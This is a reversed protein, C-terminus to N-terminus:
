SLILWVTLVMTGVITSVSHHILFSSHHIKRRAFAAGMGVVALVAFWPYPVVMYQWFRTFAEVPHWGFPAIFAALWSPLFSRAFETPAGGGEQLLAYGTTFPSGYMSANLFLIPIFPFILGLGVAGLQVSRVRFSPPEWQKSGQAERRSGRWVLAVLIAGVWLLEHTRITLALGICLGGTLRCMIEKTMGLSALFRVVHTRPAHFRSGEEKAGRSSRFSVDANGRSSSQPILLAFGMLLLAVFPVNPLFATATFLWTSPHLVLLITAVVAITPNWCRRVISAFALLGLAALIPTLFLMARTGIVRGLFGYWLPMGLYAGPVLAGDSRVNVTRPHIFNGVAVNRPEPVVLPEGAAIRAAFYANSMEDPWHFRPALDTTRANSWSLVSTGIAFLAVVVGLVM